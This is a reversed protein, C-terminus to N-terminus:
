KTKAPRTPRFLFRIRQNKPMSESPKGNRYNTEITEFDAESYVIHDATPNQMKVTNPKAKGTTESILRGNGDTETVRLTLNDSLLGRRIVTRQMQGDHRYERKVYSANRAIEHTTVGGTSHADEWRYPFKYTGQYPKGPRPQSNAQLTQLRDTPRWSYEPRQGFVRRGTKTPKKSVGRM